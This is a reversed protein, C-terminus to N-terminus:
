SIERVTQPRFNREAPSAKIEEWILAFSRMCKEKINISEEIFNLSIMGDRLALITTAWEDTDLSPSIMGEEKGEELLEMVLGKSETYYARRIDAIHKYKKMGEFLLFYYEKVGVDMYCECPRNQISFSPVTTYFHMLKEKVNHFKGEKKFDFRMQDMPVKLFPVFFKDFTEEILDERSKFYHYFGGKAIGTEKIIENLSVDSFGKKLFLSFSTKLIKDRTDMQWQEKANGIVIIYACLYQELLLGVPRNKKNYDLNRRFEIFNAIAKNVIKQLQFGSDM